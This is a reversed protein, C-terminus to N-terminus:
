QTVCSAVRCRHGQTVKDGLVYAKHVIGGHDVWGQVCAPLPVALGAFGQQTTVLAMSHAEPVGCAVIPKVICPLSLGAQLMAQVPPPMSSAQISSLLM